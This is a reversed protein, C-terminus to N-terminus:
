PAEKGADGDAQLIRVLVENSRASAEGDPVVLRVRYLGPEPFDVAEALNWHEVRIRNRKGPRIRELLAGLGGPAPKPRALVRDGLRVELHAALAAREARSVQPTSYGDGGWTMQSRSRLGPDPRGIEVEMWVERRTGVTSRAPRWGGAVRLTVALGDTPQALTDTWTRDAGRLRVPCWGFQWGWWAGPRRGSHYVLVATQARQPSLAFQAPPLPFRLTRRLSEGVALRVTARLHEFASDEMMDERMMFTRNVLVSCGQGDTLGLSFHRRLARGRDLALVMPRSTTNTLTVELALPEDCAFANKLPRVELDPGRFYRLAAEVKEATEVSEAKLLREAGEAERYHVHKPLVVRGDEVPMATLGLNMAKYAGPLRQSWRLCLYCEQDQELDLSDPHGYFPTVFIRDPCQGALVKRVELVQVRTMARRSEKNLFLGEASGEPWPMEDWRIMKARVIVDAHQVTYPFDSVSVFGRVPAAAAAVVVSLWLLLRAHARM